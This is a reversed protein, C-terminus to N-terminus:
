READGTSAFFLDALGNRTDLPGRHYIAGSRTPHDHEAVRIPQGTGQNVLLTAAGVKATTQNFAFVNLANAEAGTLGVYALKTADPSFSPM